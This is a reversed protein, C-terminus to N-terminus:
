LGGLLFLAMLLGFLWHIHWAWCVISIIVWIFVLFCGCGCGGNIIDQIGSNKQEEEM